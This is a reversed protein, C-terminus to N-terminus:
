RRLREAVIHEQEYERKLGMFETTHEGLDYVRITEIKKADEQYIDGWKWLERPKSRDLLTSGRQVPTYVSNEIFEYSGSSKVRLKCQKHDHKWGGLENSDEIDLPQDAQYWIGDTNLLLPKYGRKNILSMVKYIQNNTWEHSNYALKNWKYGTIKSEMVGISLNLVQKYEPIDKRKDFLRTITTKFEPYHKVLGAPYASNLDLHHCNELEKDIVNEDLVKILRPNMVKDKNHITEGEEKSVQYDYLDIGDKKLEDILIGLARKGSLVVGEKKNKKFMVERGSLTNLYMIRTTGREDRVILEVLSTKNSRLIYRCVGYGKSKKSIGGSRTMEFPSYHYDKMRSVLDKCFDNFVDFSVYNSSIRLYNIEKLSIYPSWKIGSADIIVNEINIDCSRFPNM